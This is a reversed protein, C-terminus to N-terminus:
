EKRLKSVFMTKVCIISQATMRTNNLRVWIAIHIVIKDPGTRFAFFTTATADFLLVVVHCVCSWATCRETLWSTQSDAFSVKVYVTPWVTENVRSATGIPAVVMRHSPVLQLNVLICQVYSWCICCRREFYPQVPEM